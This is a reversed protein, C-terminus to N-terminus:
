QSNHPSHDSERTSLSPLSSQSLQKSSSYLQEIIRSVERLFLKMRRYHSGVWYIKGCGNCVWFDRSWELVKEPAGRIRAEDISIRRISSNCVPCLSSEPNIELNLGLSLAIWAIKEAESRGRVLIAKVGDRIARSYLQEDSTLLIRYQSTCISLLEDDTLRGGYITDYGLIRLWRATRGLMADALFRFIAM